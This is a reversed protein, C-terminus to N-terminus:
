LGNDHVIPSPSSLYDPVWGKPIPSTLYLSSALTTISTVPFSTSSNQPVSTRHAPSLNPISPPNWAIVSKSFTGPISPTSHTSAAFAKLETLRCKVKNCTLFDHGLADVNRNLAWQSYLINKTSPLLSIRKLLSPVVYPHGPAILMYATPTWDKTSSNFDM